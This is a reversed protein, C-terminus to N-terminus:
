RVAEQARKYLENLYFPRGDDKLVKGTEKLCTEQRILQALQGSGNNEITFFQEANQLASAVADAPFPWLDIFHMQGVDVGDSRLM